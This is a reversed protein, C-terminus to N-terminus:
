GLNIRIGNENIIKQARCICQKVSIKGSIFINEIKLVAIEFINYLKWSINIKPLMNTQVHTPYM